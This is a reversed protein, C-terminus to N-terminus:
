IIVMKYLKISVFKQGTQRHMWIGEIGMGSGDACPEFERGQVKGEFPTPQYEAM